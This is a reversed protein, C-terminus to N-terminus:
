VGHNKHVLVGRTSSHSVPYFAEFGQFTTSSLVFTKHMQELRQRSIDLGNPRAKIELVQRRFAQLYEPLKETTIWKEGSEGTRIFNNTQIDMSLIEHMLGFFLWTQLIAVLKKPSSGQFDGGLLLDIAIKSRSPYGAFDLKDYESEGIYPVLIPSYPDAVPPLHEM